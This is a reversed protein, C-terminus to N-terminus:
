TSKFEIRLPTGNLKSELLFTKELYRRYSNPINNLGRGHIVVVPPNQGGQHAYHMKCRLINSRPPKRKQIAKQLCRTLKPTSLKTFASKYSKEISKLLSEIGRKQLASIECVNAFYLFRLKNQFERKICHIQGLSLEDLKNIAVVISKGAKLIVDAIRADQESINTCGDIVLLVVNSTEIAQLTKIFSLKEINDSNKGRKRLGTTDIITYNENRYKFDIEISDRTTGPKNFTILRDQGIITNILTSKGANPRGVVALRIQNKKSFSMNNLQIDYTFNRLVTKILNDIGLGHESSISNPEGLGLEYFDWITKKLDTRDSKNVALFVYKKGSKRLINAIDQDIKNIGIQGDVLFIIIDSEIIAQHTQESIKLSINNNSKLDFGGTDIVIFPNAGIKGEGYQRDRTIGSYNATIAKRSRTLRNFLTSKGVNPQGVLAIIPKQM